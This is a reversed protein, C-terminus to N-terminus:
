VSKTTKNEEIQDSYIEQMKELLNRDDNDKLNPDHKGKSCYQDLTINANETKHYKYTLRHNANHNYRKLVRM